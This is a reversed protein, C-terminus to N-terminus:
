TNPKLEFFCNINKNKEPYCIHSYFENFFILITNIKLFYQQLLM